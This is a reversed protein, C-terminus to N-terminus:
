LRQQQKAYQKQFATTGAKQKLLKLLLFDSPFKM